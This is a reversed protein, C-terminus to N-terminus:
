VQAKSKRSYSKTTKRANLKVSELNLLIQKEEEDATQARRSNKSQKKTLQKPCDEHSEIEVTIDGMKEGVDIKETTGGTLIRPKRGPKKIEPEDM